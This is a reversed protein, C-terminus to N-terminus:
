RYEGARIRINDAIRYGAMGPLLSLGYLVYDLSLGYAEGETIMLWQGVLQRTEAVRVDVNTGAACARM